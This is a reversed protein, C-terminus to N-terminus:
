DQVKCEKPFSVTGQNKDLVLGSDRPSDFCHGVVKSIQHILRYVFFLLLADVVILSDKLLLLMRTMIQM